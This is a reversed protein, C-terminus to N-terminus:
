ESPEVQGVLQDSLDHPAADPCPSEGPPAAHLFGYPERALSNRQAGNVTLTFSPM